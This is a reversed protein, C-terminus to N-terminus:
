RKEWNLGLKKATAWRPLACYRLLPKVTKGVIYTNIYQIKIFCNEHHTTSGQAAVNKEQCAQTIRTLLGLVM